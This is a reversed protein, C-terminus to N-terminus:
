DDLTQSMYAVLARAVQGHNSKPVSQVVRRVAQEAEQSSRIYAMSWNPFQRLEIGDSVFVEVDKHRPDRKIRSLVYEVNAREGEPIQAFKGSAALLAGTVELNKNHRRSSLLIAAIEARQTAVDDGILSRSTYAIRYLTM